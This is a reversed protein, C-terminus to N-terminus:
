ATVLKTALAAMTRTGLVMWAEYCLLDTKGLM